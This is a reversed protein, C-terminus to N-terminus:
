SRELVTALRTFFLADNRHLFPVDAALACPYDRDKRDGVFVCSAPEAGLTSLIKILGAKEPKFRGIDDDTSSCSADVSLELAKIKKIVPYDSFIGIKIQREQLLLFVRDVDQFIESKLFELPRVDMWEHVIAAVAQETLSFAKATAKFQILHIDRARQDALREVNRRYYIIILADLWGGLAAHVVLQMAMKLRVPKQCYLTGDMDFVVAHVTNWNISDIDRIM